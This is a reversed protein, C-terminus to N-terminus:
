IKLLVPHKPPLKENKDLKKRPKAVFSHFSNRASKESEFRVGWFRSIFDYHTGLGPVDSKTVGIIPYLIDHARLHKVWRPLSHFGLDSMLIFSRLLEPQQNSPKSTLSYTESVLPKMHDLNLTYLKEISSSYYEV